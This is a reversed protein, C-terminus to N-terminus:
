RAQKLLEMNDQNANSSMKEDIQRMDMTNITTKRLIEDKLKELPHGSIYIGLMEKELHLLDKKPMEEHEEFKYKIENLKEQESENGLDFMSVQGQFGKKKGSQITDIINEFSALLTSRTQPFNDFAGAKILSEICKKNVAEEAIRECFDIFGKYEGNKNREEVIKEVPM